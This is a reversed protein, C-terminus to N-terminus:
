NAHSGEARAYVGKTPIVFFTMEVSRLSRLFGM